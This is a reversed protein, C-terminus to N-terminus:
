PSVPPAPLPRPLHRWTRGIDIDKVVCWGVGFMAAIKSRSLTGTALLNIVHRAQSESLHAMRPPYVTRGKRRCDDFNDQHTGIFLHDPNICAPTDCRHCVYMGAPVDGRFVQYSLVHAGIFRRTGLYKSGITLRGYPKRASAVAGEWLWCGSNPEPIYRSLRDILPMAPVGRPKGGIERATKMDDTM